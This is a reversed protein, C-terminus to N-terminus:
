LGALKELVTAIAATGKRGLGAAQAAAFLQQVLATGPLPINLEAAAEMVLRLDKQQLDIMFGPEFDRRVIAPGLHSVMWSGAAGGGIASLMTTPDLGSKRALTLSECVALINLVGTVQNCLKTLQGNGSPGCYTITKGMAAFVPQARDFAGREGGVMISLTANVAGTQGGSVPADLMAVGREALRAHVHRTVGPSITSMDAYILGDHAGGIVGQDGLAVQEVDPSDTVCSCVMDCAAAVAAPSDAVEGGAAAFEQARGRSRNYGIVRFGAKKLNGAMPLGMIGLGVFGVTKIM